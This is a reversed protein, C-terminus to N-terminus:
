LIAGDHSLVVHMDDFDQDCGHIIHTISPVGDDASGAYKVLRKIGRTILSPTRMSFEKTLSDPDKNRLHITM